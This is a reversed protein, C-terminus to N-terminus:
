NQKGMPLNRYVRNYQVKAELCMKTLEMDVTHPLYGALEPHCAIFEHATMWKWPITSDAHAADLIRRVDNEANHWAPIFAPKPLVPVPPVDTEKQAATPRSELEGSPFEYYRGKVGNRCTRHKLGLSKLAAGVVNVYMGDTAIPFREKVERATYYDTEPNEGYAAIVKRLADACIVTQEDLATRGALRKRPEPEPGPMPEPGQVPEPAPAPAEEVLTFKEGCYKHLFYIQGAPTIRASRSIRSEGNGDTYTSEKITFIPTKRNLAMQTPLNRQEGVKCLYGENRLQEFLKLEGTDYGRTQLIKAFEGVSISGVAGKFSKAFDKQAKDKEQEAMLEANRALLATNEAVLRKNEQERQELKKNVILLARAVLEDDTMDKEGAIYGGTQRIAPLVESTVWHRFEQAAPLKSSLVLSYMGSENIITMDQPGGPTYCKTVGKDAESVHDALAKSVNAYGLAKAVDRGVLWLKGDVEVRRVDGFKDHHFISVATEQVPEAEQQAELNDLAETVEEKVIEYCSEAHLAMGIAVPNLHYYKGQRVSPFRGSQVGRIIEKRALGTMQAAEDLGIYRNYYAAM